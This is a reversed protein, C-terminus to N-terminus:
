SVYNIRSAREITVERGKEARCCILCIFRYVIIFQQVRSFKLFDCSRTISTRIKHYNRLIQMFDHFFLTQFFNQIKLLQHNKKLDQNYTSETITFRNNPTQRVNFKAKIITFGAFVLRVRIKKQSVASVFNSSRFWIMRFKQRNTLGRLGIELNLFKSKLTKIM